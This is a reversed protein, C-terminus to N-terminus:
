KEVSPQFTPQSIKDPIGNKIQGSVVFEVKEALRYEVPHSNHFVPKRTRWSIKGMKEREVGCFKWKVVDPDPPDQNIVKECKKGLADTSASGDSYLPKLPMEM